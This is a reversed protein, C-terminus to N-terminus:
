GVRDVGGFVPLPPVLDAVFQGDRLRGASRRGIEFLREGDGVVDAERHEHAGAVHEATPRHLDDVVPVMESPRHLLEGPEAAEALFAPQRGFTRHQDVPEEGVGGLDVDVGDAVGGALHQDAPDHLVDLLGADM